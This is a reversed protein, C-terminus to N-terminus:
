CVMINNILRFLVSLINNLILDILLRISGLYFFTFFFFHVLVISKKLAIQVMRIPM